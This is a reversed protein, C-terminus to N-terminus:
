CMEVFEEVDALWSFFVERSPIANWFRKRECRCRCIHGWLKFNCGHTRRAGCLVLSRFVRICRQCRSWLTRKLWRWAIGDWTPYKLNRQPAGFNFRKVHGTLLNLGRGPGSESRGEDSATLLMQMGLCIGLRAYRRRRCATVSRRIKSTTCQREQIGGSRSCWATQESSSVPNRLSRRRHGQV